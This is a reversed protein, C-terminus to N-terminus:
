ACMGDKLSAFDEVSDIFKIDAGAIFNDPKASIIVAAKVSADNAVKDQIYSLSPIM